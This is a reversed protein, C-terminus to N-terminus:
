HSIEMDHQYNIREIDSISSSDETIVSISPVGLRGGNTAVPNKWPGAKSPDQKEDGGAVSGNPAGNNANSNANNIFASLRLTNGGGSPGGKRRQATNFNNSRANNVPKALKMERVAAPDAEPDEETGLPVHWFDDDVFNENPPEFFPQKLLYGTILGTVAAIGATGLTALIQYGGQQAASRSDRAPYFNLVNGYKDNQALAAVVGSAIGGLLGPM